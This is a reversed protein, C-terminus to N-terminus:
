IIVCDIARRASKNCWKGVGIQLPVKPNGADNRDVSGTMLETECIDTDAPDYPPRFFVKWFIEDELKMVESADLIREREVKRPWRRGDDSLVEIKQVEAKLTVACNSKVVQFISSEQAPSKFARSPVGHQAVNMPGLRARNGIDVFLFWLHALLWGM